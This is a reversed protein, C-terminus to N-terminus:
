ALGWHPSPENRGVYRYGDQIATDLVYRCHHGDDHIILVEPPNAGKFGGLADMDDVDWVEFPKM